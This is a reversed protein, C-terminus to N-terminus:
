HIFGRVYSFLAVNVGISLAVLVFWIVAFVVLRSRVKGVSEALERQEAVSRELADKVTELQGDIRKFATDHETAKDHMLALEARVNTLASEVPYLDVPPAQMRPILLNAAVAAVNGELLPLVKALLPVLTRVAGVTRELGSRQGGKSGNGQPALSSPRPVDALAQGSRAKSQEAHERVLNKGVPNVDNGM